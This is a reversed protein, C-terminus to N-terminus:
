DDTPIDFTVGHTLDSYDTTNPRKMAQDDGDGDALTRKTGRRTDSQPMHDFGNPEDEPDVASELGALCALANEGSVEEGVTAVGGAFSDPVYDGAYGWVFLATIPLRVMTMGPGGNPTFEPATVVSVILKQQHLWKDSDAQEDTMLTWQKTRINFYYILPVTFAFGGGKVAADIEALRTRITPNRHVFEVAGPYKFSNEKKVFGVRSRFVVYEKATFKTVEKASSDEMAKLQEDLTMPETAPQKETTGGNRSKPTKINAHCFKSLFKDYEALKTERDKNKCERRMLVLAKNVENIKNDSSESKFLIKEHDCLYECVSRRFNSVFGVINDMEVNYPKSDSSLQDAALCSFPPYANTLVSRKQDGEKTPKNDIMDKDNGLGNPKSRPGLLFPKTIVAVRRPRSADKPWKGSRAKEKKAALYGAEDYPVSPDYIGIKGNATDMDEALLPLPFETCMESTLKVTYGFLRATITRRANELIEDIGKIDAIDNKFLVL